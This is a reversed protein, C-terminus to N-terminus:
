EETEESNKKFDEYTKKRDEKFYSERKALDFWWQTEDKDIEKKYTEVLSNERGLTHNYGVKPIVFIKKGKSTARLMWEYWFTIKISPKLGGVELWDKINFV